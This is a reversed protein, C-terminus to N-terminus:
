NSYEEGFGEGWISEGGTGDGNPDGGQIMFEEVVRHFTLGDYYADKAHTLFNEVAKPAIEPFLKIKISGEETVMEVLAENEQVDTSLQPLELANLDVSESTSTSEASNSSSPDTTSSGTCAALLLLSAAATLTFLIKKM